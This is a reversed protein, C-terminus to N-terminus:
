VNASHRKGKAYDVSVTTARKVGNVVSKVHRLNRSALKRKGPKNSDPRKEM